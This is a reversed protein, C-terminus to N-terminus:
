LSEKKGSCEGIFPTQVMVPRGKSIFFGRGAPFDLRRYELSIQAGLWDLESTDKSLVIGTHSQRFVKIVPSALQMRLEDMLGAAMLFVDRRALTAAVLANLATIVEEAGPEFFAGLDDLLFLYKCNDREEHETIMRTYEQLRASVAKVTSTFEVGPVRKPLDALLSRRLSFASIKWQAPDNKMLSQAVCAMFNSKGSERPGLILWAPLERLLDPSIVDLTEYAIGVPIRTKSASKKKGLMELLTSVPICGPITGIKVPREGTWAKDMEKIRAKATGPDSAAQFECFGDDVWYGRGESHFSLPPVIRGVVDMYEDRSALQLVLRRAINSSVMKSLEPGRNTTIILHIGAAKGDRVYRSLRDAEDPYNTRMEAYNNIVVFIAPPAKFHELDISTTDHATRKELEADLFNLLRQIKEKEQLRIVSGVHPLADLQRLSGSGFELIYIQAEEPTHTQALSLLLSNGDHNKRQRAGVIWLHGDRTTSIISLVGAPM